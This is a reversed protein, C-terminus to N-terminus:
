YIFKHQKEKEENPCCDIELASNFMESLHKRLLVYTYRCYVEEYPVTERDM